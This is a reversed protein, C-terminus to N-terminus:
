HQMQPFFTRIQYRIRCSNRNWEKDMGRKSGSTRCRPVILCFLICIQQTSSLTIKDSNIASDFPILTLVIKVSHLTQIPFLVIKDLSNDLHRIITISRLLEVVLNNQLERLFQLDQNLNIKDTLLFFALEPFFGQKPVSYNQQYVNAERHCQALLRSHSCDQYILRLAVSSPISHKIGTLKLWTQDAKRITM